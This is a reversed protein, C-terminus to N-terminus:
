SSCRHLEDVVSRWFEPTYYVYMSADPFFWLRGVRKLHAGGNNQVEVVEGEPPPDDAVSRWAAVNTM